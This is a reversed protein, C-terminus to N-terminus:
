QLVLIIFATVSLIFLYYSLLLMHYDAIFLSSVEEMWSPLYRDIGEEGAANVLDPLPNNYLLVGTKDANIKSSRGMLEIKHRLDLTRLLREKEVLYEMDPVDESEFFNRKVPVHGKQLLLQRM